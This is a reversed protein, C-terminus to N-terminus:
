ACALPLTRSHCPRESAGPDFSEASGVNLILVSRSVSSVLQLIPSPLWLPILGQAEMHRSFSINAATSAITLLVSALKASVLPWGPSDLVSKKRSLTILRASALVIFVVDPTFTLISGLDTLCPRCVLSMRLHVYTQQFHLTFDLNRCTSAPGFSADQLCTRAMNDTALNHLGTSPPTYWFTSM